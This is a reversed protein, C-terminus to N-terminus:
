ETWAEEVTQIEKREEKGKVACYPGQECLSQMSIDTFIYMYAHIGLHIPKYTYIYKSM